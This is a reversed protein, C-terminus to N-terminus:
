GPPPSGALAAGPRRGRTRLLRRRRVPGPGTAIGTAIGDRWGTWCTGPARTSPTRDAGGPLAACTELHAEVAWVTTDDVGAAGSAYRSILTPTPHTTM